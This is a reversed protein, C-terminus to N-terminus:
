ETVVGAKIAALKHRDAPLVQDDRWVWEDKEPWEVNWVLGLKEFGHLLWASQDLPLSSHQVVKQRAHHRNHGGEGGSFLAVVGNNRSEDAGYRLGRSDKTRTGILHCVSNVCWTVQWFAVVRLVGAIFVGGILGHIVGPWGDPLGLLAGVIGPGVFTAVVFYGYYKTQWKFMNRRFLSRPYCINGAADRQIDGEADQLPVDRLLHNVNPSRPPLDRKRLMWGIHSHWVGKTIEWLTTYQRVYQVDDKTGVPIVHAYEHQWPHRLCDWRSAPAPRQRELRAYERPSHPDKGGQDTFKHHALHKKVWDLVHNQLALAAGILWIRRLWPKSEFGGHTYDRHYGLSIGFMSYLYMFGALVWISWSPPYMVIYAITLGALLHLGLLPWVFGHNWPLATSQNKRGGELPAIPSPAAIITM